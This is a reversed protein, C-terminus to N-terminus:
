KKINIICPRKHKGKKNVPCSFMTRKDEYEGKSFPSLSILNYITLNYSFMGWPYYYKSKIGCEENIGHMSVIQITIINM